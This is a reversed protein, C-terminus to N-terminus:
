GEDWRMTGLELGIGPGGRTLVKADGVRVLHFKRIKTMVREKLLNAADNRRRM